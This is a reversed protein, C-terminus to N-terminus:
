HGGGDGLDHGIDEGGCLGARHQEVVGVTVEPLNGDGSEDIVDERNRFVGVPRNALRGERRERPAVAEGDAVPESHRARGCAAGHEPLVTGAADGLPLRLVGRAGVHRGERRRWWWANSRPAPRM